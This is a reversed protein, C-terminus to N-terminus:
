HVTISLFTEFSICFSFRTISNIGTLPFDLFFDALETIILVLQKFPLFLRNILTYLRGLTSNQHFSTAFSYSKRTVETDIFSQLVQETESTADTLIQNRPNRVFESTFSAAREITTLCVSLCRFTSDLHCVASRMTVNM